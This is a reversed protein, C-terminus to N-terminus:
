WILSILWGIWGLKISIGLLRGLVTGFAARMAENQPRNLRYREWSYVAAYSGIFAGFIGMIASGIFGGVVGGFLGFLIAGVLGGVWAMIMSGKSGGFKRVLLSSMFNESLEVLSCGIFTGLLTWGSVPAPRSALAYIALGLWALFTGPFGLLVAIAGLIATLTAFLKLLVSWEM